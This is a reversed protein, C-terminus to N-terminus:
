CLGFNQSLNDKVGKHHSEGHNGPHPDERNCYVVFGVQKVTLTIVTTEPHSGSVVGPPLVSYYISLNAVAPPLLLPSQKYSGEGREGEEGGGGGRREREKQRERLGM